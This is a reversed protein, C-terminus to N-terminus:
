KKILKITTITGNNNVTAFYVGAALTTTPTWRTSTIRDIIVGSANYITITFDDAWGDASTFDVYDTFPNPFASLPFRFASLMVPDTLTGYHRDPVARLSFANIHSHTLTNTAAAHLNVSRREGNECEQELAFTIEGANDTGLTLFFLTDGDVVQPTVTGAPVGNIYATLQSNQASLEPSLAAIITM